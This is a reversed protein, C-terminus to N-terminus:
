KLFGISFSRSCWKLYLRENELVIQAAGAILILVIGFIACTLKINHIEADLM